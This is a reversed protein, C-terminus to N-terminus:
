RQGISQQRRQPLIQEYTRRFPFIIIMKYILCNTEFSGSKGRNKREEEITDEEDEVDEDEVEFENDNDASGDIIEKPLSARLDEIPIESEKKLLEIESNHDEVGTKQDEEEEKAITEKM